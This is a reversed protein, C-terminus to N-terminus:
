THWFFMYDFFIERKTFDIRERGLEECIEHFVGFNKHGKYFTKKIAYIKRQKAYMEAFQVLSTKGGGLPASIICSNGGLGSGFDGEENIKNILKKIVSVEKEREILNSKYIEVPASKVKEAIEKELKKLHEKEILRVQAITRSALINLSSFRMTETTYEGIDIDGKYRQLSKCIVDRNFPTLRKGLFLNDYKSTLKKRESFYENILDFLHSTQKSRKVSILAVKNKKKSSIIIELLDSSINVHFLKLDVIESVSLGLRIILNFVLKFRTPITFDEFIHDLFFQLKHKAM